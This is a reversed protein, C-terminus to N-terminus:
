IQVESTQLEGALGKEALVWDELTLSQNHMLKDRYLRRAHERVMMKTIGPTFPEPQEIREPTRQEKNQNKMANRGVEGYAGSGIFGMLQYDPIDISPTAPIQPVGSPGKTPADADMAFCPSVILDCISLRSLQIGLM